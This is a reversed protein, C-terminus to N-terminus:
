WKEAKIGDITIVDIEDNKTYKLLEKEFEEIKLYEEKEIYFRKDFFVSSFPKNDASAGIKLVKENAKIEIEIIDNEKLLAIIRELSFPKASIAKEAMKIGKRNERVYFLEAIAIYICLISAISILFCLFTVIINFPQASIVFFKDRFVSLLIVLLSVGIKILPYKYDTLDTQVSFIKKM